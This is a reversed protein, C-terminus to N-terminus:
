PELRLLMGDNRDVVRRGGEYFFCRPRAFLQLDGVADMLGELDPRPGQPEELLVHDIRRIAGGDCFGVKM